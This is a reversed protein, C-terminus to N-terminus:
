PCVGTVLGNWHAKEDGFLREPRMGKEGEWDPTKEIKSGDYYSKYEEIRRYAKKLAEKRFSRDM